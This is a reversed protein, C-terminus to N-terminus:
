TLEERAKIAKESMGLPHQTHPNESPEEIIGDIMAKASLIYSMLIKSDDSEKANALINSVGKLVGNLM